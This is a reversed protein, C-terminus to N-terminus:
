LEISVKGGGFPLGPGGLILLGLFEKWLAAFGLGELVGFFGIELFYKLPSLYTIRKM